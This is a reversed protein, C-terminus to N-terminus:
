SFKSGSKKSKVEGFESQEYISGDLEDLEQGNLKMVKKYHKDLFQHADVYGAGCKM